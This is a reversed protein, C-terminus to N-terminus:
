EKKDVKGFEVAGYLTASEECPFADTPYNCTLTQQDFVTQNGCVFSWQNTEIIKGADDQVPLCIHFIQCANDVDAYYGYEKGECNFTQKVPGNLITEADAPFQYAGGKGAPPAAAPPTQPQPLALVSLLVASSLAAVLLLTANSSM